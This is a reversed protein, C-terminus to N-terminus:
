IIGYLASLFGGAMACLLWYVYVNIVIQSNSVNQLNCNKLQEELYNMYANVDSVYDYAGAGTINGYNKIQPREKQLRKM